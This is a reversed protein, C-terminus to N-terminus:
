RVYTRSNRKRGASVQVIRFDADVAYIGFPSNEVLQRFTIESARLRQEARQHRHINTIARGARRSQGGQM